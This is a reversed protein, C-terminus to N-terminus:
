CFFEIFFFVSQNSRKGMKNIAAVQSLVFFVVVVGV